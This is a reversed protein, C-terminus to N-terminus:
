AKSQDADGDTHNSRERDCPQNSREEKLRRRRIKKSKNRHCNQQSPDGQQSAIERRSSCRLDIWHNRQPCNSIPGSKRRNSQPAIFRKTRNGRVAPPLPGNCQTAAYRLQWASRSATESVQPRIRITLASNQRLYGSGSCHRLFFHEPPLTSRRLSAMNARSM